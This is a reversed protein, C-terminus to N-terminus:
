SLQGSTPLASQLKCSGTYTVNGCDIKPGEASCASLAVRVEVLVSFLMFLVLWTGYLRVYQGHSALM